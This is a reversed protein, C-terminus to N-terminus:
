YAIGSGTRCRPQAYDSRRIDHMREVGTRPLAGKNQLRDDPPIGPSSFDRQFACVTRTSCPQSTIHVLRTDQERGPHARFRIQVTNHRSSGIVSSWAGICLQILRQVSQPWHSPICKHRVKTGVPIKHYRSIHPKKRKRWIKQKSMRSKNTNGNM